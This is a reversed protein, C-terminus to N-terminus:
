CRGVASPLITNARFMMRLPPFWPGCANCKIQPNLPMVSLSASSRATATPFISSRGCRITKRSQRQRGVESSAPLGLSTAAIAMNELACAANCIRGWAYHRDLEEITDTLAIGALIGLVVTAFSRKDAAFRM